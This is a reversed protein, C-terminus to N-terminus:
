PLQNVVFALHRICEDAVLRYHIMGRHKVLSKAVSDCFVVDVGGLNIRRKKDLLVETFTHRRGLMPAFIGRATKLLSESISVVAIVSPSELRRIVEIHETAASYTIPLFPRTQPFVSLLSQLTHQPAVVQTRMAGKAHEAFAKPTCTKVPFNLAQQLEERVIERLGIEEEVFLIHDPSEEALRERVRRTLEPLEYGLERARQITSNILEDLTSPAGQKTGAKTGVVLRSGRQRSLWERRVLDQYAESVTNYHINTQRALARVSPLADGPRLQGTTILFVIQETLQQRLPVESRKNLSIKM